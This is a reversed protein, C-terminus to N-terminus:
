DTNVGSGVQETQSFPEPPKMSKPFAALIINRIQAYDGPIEDCFVNSFRALFDPWDHLLVLLVRVIARYYLQVFEQSLNDEEKMIEKFFQIM